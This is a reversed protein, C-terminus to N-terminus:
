NVLLADQIEPSGYAAGGTLALLNPLIQARARSHTHGCLVKLQRTPNARMIRLLTDGVAACAIHPLWDDNSIRGAFLCAEKFPPVHTLFLVNQFRELARPLVEELYAASEDGLAHLRKLRTDRDLGRLEKILVYDNFMIPSREYDGLRGDAWGDHGVLATTPTLEVVGAAPMWRLFESRATLREMAARVEPISGRYYDHNGLVFYIPLRLTLELIRLYPEVNHSEAIDGSILLAEPRAEMIDRCFAEVKERTLFNLHIDTVWALRKM